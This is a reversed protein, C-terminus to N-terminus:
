DSIGNNFLASVIIKLHGVKKGQSTWTLFFINISIKCDCDVPKGDTRLITAREL